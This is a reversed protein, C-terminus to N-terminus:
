DQCDLIIRVHLIKDWYKGKCGEARLSAGRKQVALTQLSQRHAVPEVMDSTLTATEEVIAVLKMM